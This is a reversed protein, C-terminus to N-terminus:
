NCRMGGFGDSQCNRGSNSGTGRLGGFGDSQYGGGSNSGTGRVGGFGDSQYGGGDSCRTGGFGDSRCSTQAIAPFFAGIAIALLALKIPKMLNEPVAAFAHLKNCEESFDIEQM